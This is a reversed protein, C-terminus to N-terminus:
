KLFIRIRELRNAKLNNPVLYQFYKSEEFYVLDFKSLIVVFYKSFGVSKPVGLNKMEFGHLILFFM